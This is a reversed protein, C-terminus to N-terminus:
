GRSSLTAPCLGPSPRRSSSSCGWGLSSSLLASSDSPGGGASSSPSSTTVLPLTAAGISGAGLIFGFALGEFQEFRKALAMGRVEYHTRYQDLVNVSTDRSFENALFTLVDRSNQEHNPMVLHRVLLGGTALGDEVPLRISEM